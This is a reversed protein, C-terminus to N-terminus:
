RMYTPITADINGQFYSKETPIVKQALNVHHLGQYALAFAQGYRAVLERAGLEKALPFRNYRYEAFARQARHFAYSVGCAVMDDGPSLYTDSAFAENAARRDGEFVFDVSNVALERLRAQVSRPLAKLAGPVGAIRDSIVATNRTSFDAM